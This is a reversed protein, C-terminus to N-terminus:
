DGLRLTELWPGPLDGLIKAGDVEVWAHLADASSRLHPPRVALVVTHHLSKRRLLWSLAVARPLCKTNFPLREAAREVIAASRRCAEVASGEPSPKSRNHNKTGLNGRWRHLPVFSVAFQATSLALMASATRLRGKWLRATTLSGPRECSRLSNTSM